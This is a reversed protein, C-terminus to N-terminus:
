VGEDEDWDPYQEVAEGKRWILRQSLDAKREVIKEVTIRHTWSDGYDFVYYIKMGPQLVKELTPDPNCGEYGSYECIENGFPQDYFFGAMHDNLWEFEKQIQLHLDSFHQKVPIAIRRWVPHDQYLLEVKLVFFPGRTVKKKPTADPDPPLATLMDGPRIGAQWLNDFMSNLLLDLQAKEDEPMAAITTNVAQQLDEVFQEVEETLQEEESKVPAKKPAEKKTTTKKVPASTEEAAKKTRTKKVPASTEEAAKKTRTKKVPASTEEAAKKTRTKKVPETAEEAAKKTRTKKVPETAEEAAKKTRKKTRTKKVPEAVEAARLTKVLEAAEENVKQVRTKTVAPTAPPEASAAPATKKTSAKTAM